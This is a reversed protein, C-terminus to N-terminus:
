SPADKGNNMSDPNKGTVYHTQESFIFPRHMHEATSPGRIPNVTTTM